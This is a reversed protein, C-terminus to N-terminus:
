TSFMIVRSGRPFRDWRENVGNLDQLSFSIASDISNVLAAVHGAKMYLITKANNWTSFVRCTNSHEKGVTVLSLVINAALIYLLIESRQVVNGRIRLCKHFRSFMLKSL